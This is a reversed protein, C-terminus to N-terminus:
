LLNLNGFGTANNFNQDSGFLMVQTNRDGGDADDNLGLSFGITKGLQSGAGNLAAWPVTIKLEYGNANETRAVVISAYTISGIGTTTGADRPVMIQYDDGDYTPAKSNNLDLYIEVSDDDWNNVSDNLATKDLIQFDLNLSTANYTVFVQGRASSATPTGIIFRTLDYACNTANCGRARCSGADCVNHTNTDNPCDTVLTCGPTGGSGGSGSAGGSGGKGGSGSGGAGGGSTGGKGGAGAGGTTGGSGATGGKGGSGGSTGGTGATAGGTGATAGGSGSMSMGASGSMSMGGAGGTVNGGTSSGSTTSTGATTNGGSASGGATKGASGSENTGGTEYGGGGPLAGDDQTACGTAIAAILPLLSGYRAFIRAHDSREQDRKKAGDSRSLGRMICDILWEGAAGAVLVTTL